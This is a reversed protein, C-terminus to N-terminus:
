TLLKLELDGDETPHVAIARHGGLNLIVELLAQRMRTQRAWTVMREVAIPMEDPTESVVARLLAVAEEKTFTGDEIILKILDDTLPSSM